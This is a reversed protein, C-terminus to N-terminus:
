RMGDFAADPWPLSSVEGIRLDVPKAAGARRSAQGTSTM